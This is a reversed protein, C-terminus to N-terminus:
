DFRKKELIVDGIFGGEICKRLTLRERPPAANRISYGRRTFFTLLSQKERITHAFLWEMQVAVVETERFFKAATEETFVKPESGEIDVQELLVSIADGRRQVQVYQVLFSFQVIHTKEIWKHAKSLEVPKKEPRENYTLRVTRISVM